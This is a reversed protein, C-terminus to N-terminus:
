RIIAVRLGFSTLPLKGIGMGKLPIQTFPELRMRFKGAPLEYGASLNLSAAFSSRAKTYLGNMEEAAGNNMMNYKNKELIVMYSSFGATSFFNHKGKFGFDFKAQLPIEIIHNLGKVDMLEMGSPMSSRMEKLDFYKGESRYMNKSYFLGTEVSWRKNFRYGALLGVSFGPKDPDMSKITSVNIGAAIGAYFHPHRKKDDRKSKTLATDVDKTIVYDSFPDIPKQKKAQTITDVGITEMVPKDDAINEILPQHHYGYGNLNAPVVDENTKITEKLKIVSASNSHAPLSSSAPQSAISSELGRNVVLSKNYALQLDATAISFLLIFVLLVLSILKEPWATAVPKVTEQQLRAAIDDWKDKGSKLPYNEAARKLLDDMDNDIDFM